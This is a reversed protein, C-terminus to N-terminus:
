LLDNISEKINLAFKVFKPNTEKQSSLFEESLFTENLENAKTLYKCKRKSGVKPGEQADSQIMIPNQQEIM